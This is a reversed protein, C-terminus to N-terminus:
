ETQLRQRWQAHPLTQTGSSGPGQLSPAKEILQEAIPASMMMSRPSRGHRSDKM